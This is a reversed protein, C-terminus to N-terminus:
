CKGHVDGVALVFANQRQTDKSSSSVKVGAKYVRHSKKNFTWTNNFVLWIDECFQFPTLYQNESLKKMITSFDMPNKIIDFYGPAIAETVPQRFWSGDDHNYLRHLVTQMKQRLEDTSFVEPHKLLSKSSADIQAPRNVDPELKENKITVSEATTAANNSTSPDTHPM